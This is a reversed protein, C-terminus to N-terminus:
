IVKRKSPSECYFHVQHDFQLAEKLSEEAEELIRKQLKLRALAIHYQASPGGYDDLLHHALARETFQVFLPFISAYYSTKHHSVLIASLMQSLLFTYISVPMAKVELLFEVTQMFITQSPVAVLDQRSAPPEEPIDPVGSPSKARVSGPRSALNETSKKLNGLLVHFSIFIFIAFSFFFSYLEVGGGFFVCVCKLSSKKM